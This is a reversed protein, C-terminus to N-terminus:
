GRAHPANGSVTGCTNDPCAGGGLFTTSGLNISIGAKMTAKPSRSSLLSRRTANRAKHTSSAVELGCCIEGYAGGGWARTSALAAM